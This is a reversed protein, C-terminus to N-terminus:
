LERVTQQPPAQLRKRFRDIEERLADPSGGGRSGPWTEPGNALIQAAEPGLRPSDAVLSRLPAEGAVARKVLGAVINHAERFPTGSAVLWEALATAGMLEDAAAMSMRETDFTAGDITGTLARLTKTTTEFSDFLPEKDEQLDKSYGMPLGKLTALLGTLNGILRGTKGRAMEAVDPNKKQPMMSSGTSFEDAPTVFGFERSTWIVLDEGLRSLHVGLLALAFLLEAVFDRDGVADISNDFAASFGLQRANLEVDIDLTTGAIAGAGLPSVDLRRRADHLRDVDRALAWGHALLYHGLAVPQAQQLHTYGPMMTPGAKIAQELLAHQLAGVEELVRDTAEKSWLRLDTSVQDNRSRATHMKAGAPTIETVRREVATHIDEDTPKFEFEGRSIESEVSELAELISRMETEDVLGVDGLMAVHAASAAIDQRYLKIDFALSDGLDRLRDDSEGDFRGSWLTSM